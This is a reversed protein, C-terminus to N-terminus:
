SGWAQDDVADAVGGGASQHYTVDVQDGPAVDDFLGLAPDTIFTVPQGSGQETLTLGGDSVASVAGRADQEVYEVDDASLTGDPNQHYTVDVVDGVLLGGTLESAPDVSFQRQGAATSITVQADSVQTIPGQATQDDTADDGPTPGDESGGGASTASGPLTITITWHGRADVTESILVTEGPALGQIQVTVPASFAAHALARTSVRGSSLHYPSGDGLRLRAQRSSARIVRAYFSFTGSARSTTTVHSISRGARHFAVADGLGLRPLTGEYHYARVVHTADVLEVAHRRTNVSLVKARSTNALAGPPLVALAVLGAAPILRRM